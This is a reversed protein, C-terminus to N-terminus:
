VGSGPRDLAVVGDVLARSSAGPAPGYRPRSAPLARYGVVQWGPGELPALTELGFLTLAGPVRQALTQMQQASGESVIDALWHVVAPRDALTTALATVAAAPLYVLLGETLVIVEGSRGTEDVLATVATDDRVDLGVRRVPCNSQRGHLTRDKLEVVAPDDAEVLERCGSLRMRYPRTCFGAGLNVVAAGPWRDLAEVLMRDILVTRGVVEDLGADALRAVQAAAGGPTFLEALPDSLRPRPRRSEAARCAAAAYATAQVTRDVAPNM